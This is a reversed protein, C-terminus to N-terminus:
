LDIRSPCARPVTAFRHPLCTRVSVLAFVSLRVVESYHTPASPGWCQAPLDANADESAPSLAPGLAVCDVTKRHSGRTRLATRRLAAEASLRRSCGHREQARQQGMAAACGPGIQRGGPPRPAPLTVRMLESGPHM